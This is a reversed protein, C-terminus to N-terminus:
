SVYLCGSADQILVLGCGGLGLIDIEKDYKDAERSRVPTELSVRTCM